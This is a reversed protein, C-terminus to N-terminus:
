RMRIVHLSYPDKPGAGILYFSDGAAVIHDASRRATDISKWLVQGSLSYKALFLGDRLGLTVIYGDSVAIMGYDSGQPAEDSVPVTWLRNRRADFSTLFFEGHHIDDRDYLITCASVSSAVQSRRAQITRRGLETGNRDIWIVHLRAKRYDPSSICSSGDELAAATPLVWNDSYTRRWGVEGDSRIRIVTMPSQDGILLFHDDSLAVLEKYEPGNGAVNKVPGLKGDSSVPAFVAGDFFVELGGHMYRASLVV